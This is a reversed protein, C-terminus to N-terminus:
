LARNGHWLSFRFKGPSAVLHEFPNDTGMDVNLLFRVFVNRDIDLGLIKLDVGVLPGRRISQKFAVRFRLSANEKATDTATKGV